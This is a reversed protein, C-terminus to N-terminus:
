VDISVVHVVNTLQELAASGEAVIAGGMAVLAMVAEGAEAM